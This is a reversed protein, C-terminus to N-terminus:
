LQNEKEVCYVLINNEFTFYQLQYKNKHGAQILHATFSGERGPIFTDILIQESFSIGQTDTCKFVAEKAAWFLVKAFQANDLKAILAKENENLFRDAVRDINRSCQEIDIGVKKESLFIVAYDASHSISINQKEGSLFPKGTATYNIEPKRNELASLLIRTALFEKQRKETRLQTYQNKEVESLTLLPLLQEPTEDLQWIGIKGDTNEIKQVFPM